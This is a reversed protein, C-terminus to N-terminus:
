QNYEQLLYKKYKKKKCFQKRSTTIRLNTPVRNWIVPGSYSLSQKGLNTRIIEHKLNFNEKNWTSYMHNIYSCYEPIRHPLNKNLLDYM